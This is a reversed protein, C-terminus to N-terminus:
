ESLSTFVHTISPQSETGASIAPSDTGWEGDTISCESIWCCLDLSSPSELFRMGYALDGGVGGQSLCQRGSTPAGCLCTSGWKRGGSLSALPLSCPRLASLLFALAPHPQVPSLCSGLLSLAQATSPLIPVNQIILPLPCGLHPFCGLCFCLPWFAPPELGLSFGLQFPLLSHCPVSFAPPRQTWPLSPVGPQPTQAM